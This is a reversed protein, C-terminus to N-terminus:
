PYVKSTFVLPEAKPMQRTTQDRRRILWLGYAAFPLMLVIAVMVEGVAPTSTNTFSGVSWFALFDQITHILVLPWISGSYLLPGACAIGWLIAFVVQMATALPDAGALLNVLHLLGFIVSSTLAAPLLGKSALARLAIGRLVTEEAFGAIVAAFAFLLLQTPNSLQFKDFQSLVMLLPIVLLPLAPVFDRWRWPWVFGAERSWHLTWLLFIALLFETIRSSITRTADSLGPILFLWIYQVAALALASLGVFLTPYRAAFTRM